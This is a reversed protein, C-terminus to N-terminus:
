PISQWNSLDTWQRGGIFAEHSIRPKHFALANELTGRETFFQRIDAIIKARALLNKISASPQWETKKDSLATM